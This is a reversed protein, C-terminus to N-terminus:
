RRSGPADRTTVTVEAYIALLQEAAAAAGSWGRAQAGGAAALVARATRDDLLGRVAADLADVDGQPVQAAGSGLLHAVVGGAPVVLAVGAQAALLAFLPRARAATVVAIDAGRILDVLTARDHTVGGGTARAAGATGTEAPVTEVAAADPEAREGAFTV